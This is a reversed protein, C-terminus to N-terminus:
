TPDLSLWPRLEDLGVVLGETRLVGKVQEVLHQLIVMSFTNQGLLSHLVAIKIRHASSRLQRNEIIDWLPPIIQIPPPSAPPSPPPLPM